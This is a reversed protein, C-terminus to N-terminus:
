FVMNNVVSRVGPVRGTIRIALDRARLDKPNGGLEVVGDVVKVTLSEAGVRVDAALAGRVRAATANDAAQERDAPTRRYDPSGPHGPSGPYGPYDPYRGGGYSDACGTLAAAMMLAALTTSYSTKMTYM